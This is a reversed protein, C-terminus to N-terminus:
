INWYKPIALGTFAPSHFEPECDEACENHQRGTQRGLDRGVHEAVVIEPWSCFGLSRQVETAHVAVSRVAADASHRGQPVLSKGPLGVGGVGAGGHLVGRRLRNQFLGAAQAQATVIAGDGEPLGGGVALDAHVRDAIREARIELHRVGDAQVKRYLIRDRQRRGQHRAMGGRVGGSFNLEHVAVDLAGTAM